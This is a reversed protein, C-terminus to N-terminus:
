WGDDAADLQVDMVADGAGEGSGEYAVGSFRSEVMKGAVGPVAEVTEGNPKEVIVGYKGTLVAAGGRACDVTM